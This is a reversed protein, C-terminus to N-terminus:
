SMHLTMSPTRRRQWLCSPSTEEELMSEAGVMSKQKVAVGNGTSRTESLAKKALLRVPAEVAFYLWVSPVFSIILDTLASRVVTLVTVHQPTREAGGQMLQVAFHVLYVGYSLRSLTVLPQWRLFRAMAGEEGLVVGVILAGLAATWLVPSLSAYLASVLAGPPQSLDGFAVSSELVAFMALLGGWSLWATRTPGLEVGREKIRLMLCGAIVGVVYPAARMHTAVYMPYFLPEAFPNQLARGSWMMMPPWGYALAAAFPPLAALALASWLRAPSPLAGALSLALSGLVFQQMDVALSWSQLMCGYEGPPGHVYNNVYLLNTWWWRRCATEEPITTAKWLPGSGMSRMAVAYFVMVVAYPPTLRLYRNVLARLPRPHRQRAALVMLLGSLFFCTDVLLAAHHGLAHWLSTRSETTNILQNATPLRASNFARHSGLILLMNIARLGSVANLDMGALLPEPLALARGHARWDWWSWGRSPALVVALSLGAVLVWFLTAPVDTPAAHLEEAGVCHEEAVRVEFASHHLATALADQLPAHGCSEPVCLAVLVEGLPISGPAIGCGQLAHLVNSEPDLVTVQDWHAVQEECPPPPLYRNRFHPRIHSQSQTQLPAPQAPSSLQALCYRAGVPSVAGTSLCADFSGLHFRAGWLGGVVGRASADVMREAWVTRNKLARQLVLTDQHCAHEPGLLLGAKFSLTPYLAAHAHLSAEVVLM